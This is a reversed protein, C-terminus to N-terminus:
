SRRWRCQLHPLVSRCGALRPPLIVLAQDFGVGTHRDALARWGAADPLPDGDDAAVVMFDNGLGHMKTFRLNVAAGSLGLRRATATSAATWSPSSAPAAPANRPPQAELAGGDQLWWRPCVGLRICTM